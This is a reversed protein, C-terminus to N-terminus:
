ILYSPKKSKEAMKEPSDIGMVTLANKIVVKTAEILEVRSYNVEDNEIVRCNAYFSHFKSAVEYIYNPLKHVAYTESIDELVEPFKILEKVLDLESKETLEIKTTAPREKVEALISCIRAHAYQVYYVPNKDSQELALDLDFEMHTDNSYKLFFFRTVDLGVEEVLEEITVFTGSRKSMKLEEGDRILKVMQMLIFDVKEKDSFVDVIARLRGVYGHHDAGWIHIVKDFKRTVFKNYQYAIDSLFYTMEGNEKKLVRDKDDGYQTTKMWTAGEKEYLLDKEKLIELLQDVLGEDYLSQESFWNDFNIKMVEKTVRKLDKIMIKLVQGKIKEKIIDIKEADKLTYNYMKIQKAVEEIYKGQYCYDPYPVQLGQTHWYKRIVSEALINVQNGADNIYYEREVNFGQTQMVSALVDGTFGGRGNGLTLPGTPNASIFEIQVKKNQKISSNGFKDAQKNIDKVLDAYINENITFNVFGPHEITIKKIFKDTEPQAKIKEAIDSALEMPNQGLKSSLKLALNIAYDGMGAPPYDIQYEGIEENQYATTVLQKIKEKIMIFNYM